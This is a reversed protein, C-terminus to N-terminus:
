AAARVKLLRRSNPVDKLAATLHLATEQAFDAVSQPAISCPPSRVECRGVEINPDAGLELLALVLEPRRHYIARQLATWGDYIADVDAGSGVLLRSWRPSLM